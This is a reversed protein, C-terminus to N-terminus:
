CQDNSVDFFLCRRKIEHNKFYNQMLILKKYGM